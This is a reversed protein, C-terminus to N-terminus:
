PILVKKTTGDPQRLIFVGPKQNRAPRGQLDYFQGSPQYGAAINRVPTAKLRNLEEEELEIYCDLNYWDYTHLYTNLSGKPIYVHAERPVWEQQTEDWVKARFASVTQTGMESTPTSTHVILSDIMTNRIAYSAMWNISAPLYLLSLKSGEFAYYTIRETGDPLYVAGTHESPMAIVETKAKDMVAGQHNSLYPHNPDVDFDTLMLSLSQRGIERLNRPLRLRNMMGEAPTSSFFAEQGLRELSEPLVLRSFTYGKFAYADITKVGEPITVDHLPEAPPSYRIVRSHNATMLMDGEYCFSHNEPSVEFSIPNSGFIGEYLESVLPGIYVHGWRNLADIVSYKLISRGLYVSDLSSPQIYHSCFVLPREGDELILKKLQSCNYGFRYIREVSSPIIMTEIEPEDNSVAPWMYVGTVPYRVGKYEVSSPVRFEKTYTDKLLTFGMTDLKAFEMGGVVISPEQPSNKNWVSHNYYKELSGEPVIMCNSSPTWMPDFCTPPEQCLLRLTDANVGYQTAAITKVQPGITFNKMRSVIQCESLDRGLYFNKIQNCGKFTNWGGTGLPKDSDEIILEELNSCDRFTDYSVNEVTAPITVSTVEKNDHFVDHCITRVPLQKGEVLIFEPIVIKGSQNCAVLFAEDDTVEYTMQDIELTRVKNNPMLGGLLTGWDFYHNEDPHIILLKYYGPEESQWGFNVHIYGGNKYGDCVLQHGEALNKNNNVTYILPRGHTLEHHIRDLTIQEDALTSSIQWYNNAYNFYKNFEFGYVQASTGIPGLYSAETAVGCHFVLTAVMDSHDNQGYVDKMQDVHYITESYNASLTQKATTCYYSSSGNGQIPWKHAYMLMAMAVPTCGAVTHYNAINVDPDIPCEQNYPEGQHWRATLLPEVNERKDQWVPSYAPLDHERAFAIQQEYSKLLAQSSCCLGDPLFRGSTSFGIVPAVREDASTIVYGGDDAERNFIYFTPLERTGGVYTLKLEQSRVARLAAARHPNQGSDQIREQLFTAAIDRARNESIIQSHVCLNAVLLISLLIIRKPM